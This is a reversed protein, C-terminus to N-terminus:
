RAESPELLEEVGILHTLPERAARKKLDATFGGRSFLLHHRTAADSGYRTRAANLVLRDLVNEGAHGKWWKCEGFVASGDLLTGAVDLDFDAAWIQGVERAPVGLAEQGYLRTYDRCVWEFVGGMYDDLAPAISLDYVEAAHGAALASLHPLCFRYWFALFPDDLYYRRDRERETADLSRVIRILRLGQLKQIYPALQSADRLEAVRGIITGSDTCGDAVARLITAYRTVTQLEAQLIHNSEDGLPAGKELVLARVNEALSVAPDCLALYYPVGGFVGYAYLREAARWGPFFRAAERYSLPGVDLELTQRGHLPNKEALLEEMFSVKSGCLVLKLPSEGRRVEDWLKQVLSPLGRETECLYPFEDLVVTLGPTSRAADALYSLLGLWDNLGDVLPSDGLVRRVEQKFLTVNESTAIKSAQYYIAPRDAIARLLLTSKGVRRRGYVVLLSARKRELERTIARLELDRGVFGSM